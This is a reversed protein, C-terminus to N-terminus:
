IFDRPSSEFRVTAQPVPVSPLRFFSSIINEIDDLHLYDVDALDTRQQDIIM